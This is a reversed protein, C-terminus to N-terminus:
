KTEKKEPAAEIGSDKGNLLRVVQGYVLPTLMKNTVDQILKAEDLTVDVEADERVKLGLEFRQIKSDGSINKEDQHSQGLAVRAIFGLTAVEASKVGFNLKSLAVGDWNRLIAAFNINM